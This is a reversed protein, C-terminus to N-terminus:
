VGPHHLHQGNPTDTADIWGERHWASLCARVLQRADNMSLDAVRAIMAASREEDHGRALLEWTAASPGALTMSRGAPPDILRVGRAQVTWWVGPSPTM